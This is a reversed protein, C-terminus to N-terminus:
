EMGGGQSKDVGTRSETDIFRIEPKKVSGEDISEESLSLGEASLGWRGGWERSRPVIGQGTMRNNGSLCTYAFSVEFTLSAMVSFFFAFLDLKILFPKNHVIITHVSAQQPSGCSSHIEM